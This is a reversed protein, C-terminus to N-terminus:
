PGAAGSVGAPRQAQSGHPMPSPLPAGLVVPGGLGSCAAERSGDRAAGGNGIDMGAAKVWVVMESGFDTSTAPRVWAAGVTPAM